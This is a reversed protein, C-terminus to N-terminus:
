HKSWYFFNSSFQTQLSCRSKYLKYLDRRTLETVKKIGSIDNLTKHEIPSPGSRRKGNDLGLGL